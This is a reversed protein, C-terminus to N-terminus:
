TLMFDSNKYTTHNGNGFTGWLIGDFWYKQQNFWRTENLRPTDLRVHGHRVGAWSMGFSISASAVLLAAARSFSLRPNQYFFVYIIVHIMYIMYLIYYIINVIYLIIYTITLIHYIYIYIWLIQIMNIVYIIYYIYYTYIYIYIM